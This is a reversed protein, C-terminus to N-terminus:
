GAIHHTAVPVHRAVVASAREVGTQSVTGFGHADVPSAGEVLAFRLRRLRM